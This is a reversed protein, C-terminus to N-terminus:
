NWWFLNVKHKYVNKIGLIEDFLARGDRRGRFSENAASGAMGCHTISKSM